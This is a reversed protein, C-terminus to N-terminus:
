LHCPFGPFGRKLPRRCFRHEGGILFGMSARYVSIEVNKMLEGSKFLSVGDALVASPAPVFTSTIWGASVAVQWFIILTVPVVWPLVKLIVERKPQPTAPMTPLVAAEGAKEARVNEM